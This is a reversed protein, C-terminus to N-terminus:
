LGDAYIVLLQTNAVVSNYFVTLLKMLAKKNLTKSQMTENRENLLKKKFRHKIFGLDIM